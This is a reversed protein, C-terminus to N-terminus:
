LMQTEELLMSREEQLGEQHSEISGSKVETTSFELIQTASALRTTHLLNRVEIVISVKGPTKTEVVEAKRTIEESLIPVDARLDAEKDAAIMAAAPLLNSVAVRAVERTTLSGGVRSLAEEGLILFVQNIRAVTHTELSPNNQNCKFVAREGKTKNMASPGQPTLSITRVTAKSMAEHTTRLATKLTKMGGNVTISAKIAPCRSIEEESTRTRTNTAIKPPKIARMKRLARKNKTAV